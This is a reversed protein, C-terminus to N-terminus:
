SWRRREIVQITLFIFLAAFSLYYFLSPISIIGRAFDQYFRTFVSILEVLFKVVPTQIGNPLSRIVMLFVNIGMAAFAAVLQSETLSSIFLDVSLIAAGLLIIGLYYCILEGTLPDSAYFLGIVYYILNVATCVFFTFLAALFKGIVISAVSIPATLLLQDTKMRREEALLRMTLMPILFMLLWTAQFQFNYSLSALMGNLNAAYYYFSSLLVYIACIIYGMPTKFFLYVEKKCIEVM